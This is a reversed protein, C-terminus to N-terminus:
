ASIKEMHLDHTHPQNLWCPSCDPHYGMERDGHDWHRHTPSTDTMSAAWLEGRRYAVRYGDRFRLCPEM